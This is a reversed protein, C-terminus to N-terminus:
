NIELRDASSGGQDNKTNRLVRSLAERWHIPRTKLMSYTKTKNLVSYKPRKAPTPFESTELPDIVAKSSLMGLDFAIEQIAIAFDYWSAVGADTLHHIGRANQEILEVVGRALTGASTPTGIQDAVVGVREQTAMLRLMTSVFNGHGAAYVWATRIVMANRGLTEMVALEGELKTKGYVSLPNPDAGVAIPSCATGDFVFDTSIHVLRCSRRLCAEALVRPGVGNVERAAAPSEEARDVATFAASNVVLEAGTTDLIEGVRDPNTIDCEERTAFTWGGDSRKLDALASALQGPYGTVLVKLAVGDSEVAELWRSSERSSRRTPSLCARGSM